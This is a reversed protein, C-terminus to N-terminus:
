EFQRLWSELRDINLIILSLMFVLTVMTYITKRRNKRKIEEFPIRNWRDYMADSLGPERFSIGEDEGPEKLEEENLYQPKYNFKRHRSNGFFFIM